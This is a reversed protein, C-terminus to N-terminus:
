TAGEKRPEFLAPTRASFDARGKDTLIGQFVGHPSGDHTIAVTSHGTQKILGIVDRLPTAPTVNSDSAVFGAKHHKVRRIMAAQEQIPQSCYIFAVGGRRALGIAMATGSVAQMSASVFPINLSLRPEEGQKFKALPTRLSVSSVLHKKESLRPILLYESFTRSIDPLIQAM